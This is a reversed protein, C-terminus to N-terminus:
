RRKLAYVAVLGAVALAVMTVQQSQIGMQQASTTSQDALHTFGDVANTASTTYARASTGLTSAIQQALSLSQDVSQSALKMAGPDLTTLNLTSGDQVSVGSGSNTNVRRYDSQHTSTDSTSDSSSSLFDFFGM